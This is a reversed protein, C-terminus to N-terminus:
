PVLGLRKAHEDFVDTGSPWFGRKLEVEAFDISRNGDPGITRWDFPAASIHGSSKYEMWYEKFQAIDKEDIASDENVDILYDSARKIKLLSSLLTSNHPQDAERESQM